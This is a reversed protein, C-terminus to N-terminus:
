PKSLYAVTARFGFSSLSPPGTGCTLPWFYVAQQAGGKRRADLTQGVNIQRRPITCDAAPPINGASPPCVEVLLSSAPTTQVLTVSIAGDAASFNHIDTGCGDNLMRSIGIFEDTTAQATPSSPSDGGCGAVLTLVCVGALLCAKMQEETRFDKQLTAARRFGGTCGTDEVSEALLRTLFVEQVVDPAANERTLSLSQVLYPTANLQHHAM